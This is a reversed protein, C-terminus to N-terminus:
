KCIYGMINVDDQPRCLLSDTLPLFKELYRFRSPSPPELWGGGGRTVRTHTQM